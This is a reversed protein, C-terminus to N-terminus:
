LKLLYEIYTSLMCLYATVFKIASTNTRLETLLFKVNLGTWAIEPFITFHVLANSHVSTRSKKKSHLALSNAYLYPFGCKFEIYKNLTM